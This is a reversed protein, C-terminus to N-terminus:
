KAVKQSSQQIRLLASKTMKHKIGKQLEKQASEQLDIPAKARKSSGFAKNWEGVGRLSSGIPNIEPYMKRGLKIGEADKRQQEHQQSIKVREKSKQAVRLAKNNSPSSLRDFASTKTGPSGWAKSTNPSKSSSKRTGM